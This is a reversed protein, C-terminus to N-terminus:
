CQNSTALTHSTRTFPGPKKYCPHISFAIGKRSRPHSMEERSSGTM